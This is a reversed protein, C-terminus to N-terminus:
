SHTLTLIFLLQGYLDALIFVVYIIVVGIEVLREFGDRSQVHYAVFCVHREKHRVHIHM